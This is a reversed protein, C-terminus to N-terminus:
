IRKIPQLPSMKNTHCCSGGGILEELLPTETPLPVDNLFYLSYGKVVDLLIPVGNACWSKLATM